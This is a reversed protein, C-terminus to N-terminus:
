DPIVLVAPSLSLYDKGSPDLQARMVVRDADLGAVTLASGTANVNARNAHFFPQADSMTPGLGANEALLAYVANEITRAAARGFESALNALAGMDDNIIVE